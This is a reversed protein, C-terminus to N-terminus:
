QMGLMKRHHVVQPIIGADLTVGFTICGGDAGTGASTWEGPNTNAGTADITAVAIRRAEANDVGLTYGSPPSIADADFQVGGIVTFIKDGSAGGTMAPPDPTDDDIYDNQSGATGAIPTGSDFGTVKACYARYSSSGSGQGFTLTPQESSAVKYSVHCATDGGGGSNITEALETWGTENVSVNLNDNVSGFLILLDGDNHSPPTVEIDAVADGSALSGWTISIAM